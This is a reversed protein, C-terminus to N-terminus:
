KKVALHLANERQITVDRISEPCDALFEFLIEVMGKEAVYHLPTKGERGRVRALNRDVDLLRLVMQTQEYQLALHMPTFGHKSLKRVFSPKLRMIELAFQIHGASAAMHLPTDVFPVEDIHELLYVDESILAYLADLDGQETAKKLRQDKSATRAFPDISPLFYAESAGAGRLMEELEANGPPTQALLIDLATLGDSNKANVDVEGKLLCRVVQPQNQYIALHLVTNGYKEKWNLIRKNWFRNDEHNIGELSKVLVEFAEFENNKLAIHLATESRVTVDEFSKPCVSLVGALLHVDGKEAAFHLPTLGERGFSPKLMMVEIAFEIDGNSAAVHLPTTVFPIEDIRM